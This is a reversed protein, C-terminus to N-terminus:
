IGPMRGSERLSLWEEGALIIHDLLRIELVALAQAVAATSLLDERSPLPVEDPHNHALVVCSAGASVAETTIRRISVETSGAGGEDLWVLRLLRRRDDLALMALRERKAGRFLPQLYAAQDAASALRRKPRNRSMAYCKDLELLTHLFRATVPGVGPVSALEQESAELVGALSGFRDILAHATPNTDRRPIVFFLIYELIEHEALSNLGYQTVRARMRSRHDSHFHQPGAAKKEKLSGGGKGKSKKNRCSINKNYLIKVAPFLALEVAKARCGVSFPFRAM